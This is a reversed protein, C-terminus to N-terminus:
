TCSTYIREFRIRTDVDFTSIVQICIIDVINKNTKYDSDAYRAIRDDINTEDAGVIYANVEIANTINNILININM